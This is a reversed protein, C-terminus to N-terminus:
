ETFGYRLRRVVIDEDFIMIEEIEDSLAYKESKNPLIVSDTTILVDYNIKYIATKSVAIELEDVRLQVIASCEIFEASKLELFEAYSPYVTPEGSLDYLATISRIGKSKMLTPVAQAIAGSGEVNVIVASDGEVIVVAQMDDYCLKYAIVQDSLLLKNALSVVVFCVYASMFMVIETIGFRRRLKVFITAVVISAVAIYKVAIYGTPLSAFPLQVVVRSIILFLRTLYGASMVLPKFLLTIGGTLAVVASICLVTSCLPLLFINTLVSIVSVEDFFIANLPLTVVAITMMSIASQKFYYLRSKKSILCIIKPSIFGLALAGFASLLLSPSLIVYPQGITMVCVCFVVCGLCDYSRRLLPALNHITMMVGARIVSVSGGAFIVFLVIFLEGIILKPKTSLGVASMLGAIMYYIIVLHLGSVSFIHLMGTKSLVSKLKESLFSKDGCLMACILGGEQSPLVAMIKATLYDRYRIVLGRLSPSGKEVSKIEAYGGSLFVGQSKYYDKGSFYLNDQLESLTASVTVVSNYELTRDESIFSIKASTGGLKGDLTYLVKDGSIHETGVARGTFVVDQGVYSLQNEYVLLTYSINIILAVCFSVGVALVDYMRNRKVVALFCTSVSAIPLLVVLLKVSLFSALFLGCLYPVGITVTKRRMKNRKRLPKLKSAKKSSRGASSEAM